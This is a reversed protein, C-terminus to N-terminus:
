KLSLYHLKYNGKNFCCVLLTSGPMKHTYIEYARKCYSELIQMEDKDSVMTVLVSLPSNTVLLKQFDYKIGSLQYEESKREKKIRYKIILDQKCFFSIKRTKHWEIECVMDLTRPMYFENDADTYWHIDFLWESCNFGNKNPDYRGIAKLHEDIEMIQEQTLKNTYVYLGMDHGLKTLAVKITQTKLTFSRNKLIEPTVSNDLIKLINIWSSNNVETNKHDFVRFVNDSDM